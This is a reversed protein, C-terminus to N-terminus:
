RDDPSRGGMRRRLPGPVPPEDPLFEGTLDWARLEDAQEAPPLRNLRARQGPTARDLFRSRLVEIPDPIAPDDQEEWEAVIDAPNAAESPVVALMSATLPRAHDMADTIKPEQRSQGRPREKWAKSRRVTKEPIDTAKSIAVSTANPNRELEGKILANTDRADASVPRDDGSPGAAPQHNGETPEATRGMGAAPPPSAAPPLSQLLNNLRIWAQDFRDKEERAIKPYATGLRPSEVWADHLERLTRRGEEPTMTPGYRRERGEDALVEVEPRCELGKCGAEWSLAAELRPREQNERFWEFREAIYASRAPEPDALREWGWLSATADFSECIAEIYRQVRPTWGVFSGLLPRIPRLADALRIFLPLYEDEQKSTM